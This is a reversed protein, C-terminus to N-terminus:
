ADRGSCTVSSDPSHTTWVPRRRKRERAVLALLFPFAFYPTQKTACMDIFDDVWQLIFESESKAGICARNNEWGVQAGRNKEWALQEDYIALSLPRLYFDTPPKRFGNKKYNFTQYSPEGDEGFLTSYGHNSFNKWIMPFRDFNMDRIKDSKKLEQYRWGTLLPVVNPFTNVGVRTNGTMDIAGLEHQLFKRLKPLKRISNLRSTSDIAMLIVNFVNPDSLQTSMQGINPKSTVFAHFNVYFVKGLKNFCRVRVYECCTMLTDESFQVPKDYAYQFDDDELRRINQFSCRTLNGGSSVGVATRNIRLYDRDTFTLSEFQSCSVDTTNNPLKLIEENYPDINPIRCGPTKILFKPDHTTKTPIHTAEEEAPLQIQFTEEIADPQRNINASFYFLMLIAGVLAGGFCRRANLKTAM